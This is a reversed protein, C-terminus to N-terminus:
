VSLRYKIFFIEAASEVNYTEAALPSPYNVKHYKGAKVSKFTGSNSDFQLKFPSAFTYFNFNLFTIFAKTFPYMQTTSKLTNIM